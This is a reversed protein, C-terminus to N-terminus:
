NLQILCTVGSTIGEVQLLIAVTVTMTVNDTVTLFPSEEEHKTLM